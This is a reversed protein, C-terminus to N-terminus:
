ASKRLQIFPRNQRYLEKIRIIEKKLALPVIGDELDNVWACLEKLFSECHLYVSLGAKQISYYDDGFSIAGHFSGSELLKEVYELIFFLCEVYNFDQKVFYNNVRKLYPYVDPYWEDIVEGFFDDDWDLKLRGDEEILRYGNAEAFKNRLEDKNM